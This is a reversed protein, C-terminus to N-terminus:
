LGEGLSRGLLFLLERSTTLLQLCITRLRDVDMETLISWEAIVDVPEAIQSRTRSEDNSGRRHADSDLPALPLARRNTITRAM